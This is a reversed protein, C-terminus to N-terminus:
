EPQNLEVVNGSPDQVFAQHGAGVVHASRRASVGHRDLEEIWADLDDVILAFHNTIGPPTIETGILHVQQGGVQLWAGPIGFDPRNPDVVLGLWEYFKISADLDRVGISVHSVGSIKM